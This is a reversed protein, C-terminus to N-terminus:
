SLKKSASQQAGEQEGRGATRAQALPSMFAEFDTRVIAGWGRRKSWRPHLHTIPCDNRRRRLIVPPPVDKPIRREVTQDFRGIALVEIQRGRDRSDRFRPRPPTNRNAIQE